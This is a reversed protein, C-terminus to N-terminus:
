PIMRDIQSGVANIQQIDDIWKEALKKAESNVLGDPTDSILTFYVLEEVLTKTDIIQQLSETYLTILSELTVGLAGGNAVHGYAISDKRMADKNAILREVVFPIPAQNDEYAVAEYPRTVVQKIGTIIAVEISDIQDFLHHMDKDLVFGWIDVVKEEVSDDGDLISTIDGYDEMGDLLMAGEIIDALLFLQDFEVDDAWNFGINKTLEYAHDFLLRTLDDLVSPAEGDNAMMLLRDVDPQVQHNQLTALNQCLEILKERRVDAVVSMLYDNLDSFDGVDPQSDDASLPTLKRDEVTLDTIQSM